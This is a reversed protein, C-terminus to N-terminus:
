QLLPQSEEIVPGGFGASGGRRTVWIELSTKIPSDTITVICDSEDKEFVLITRESKFSSLLKWGDRPMSRIFFDALSWHNVRGSFVMVGGKLEATDYVFSEKENLKMDRPVLVDDFDYYYNTQEKAVPTSDSQRSSKSSSKRQLGLTECATASFLTIILMIWLAKRLM